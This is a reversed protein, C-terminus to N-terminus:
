SQNHCGNPKPQLKWSQWMFELKRKVEGQQISVPWSRGTRKGIRAGRDKVGDLMSATMHIKGMLHNTSKHDFVTTLGMAFTDVFTV